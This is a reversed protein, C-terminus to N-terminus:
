MAPQFPYLEAAFSIVAEQRTLTASEEVPQGTSVSLGGTGEGAQVAAGGLTPDSRIRDTVAQVLDDLDEQADQTTPILAAHWLYLQVAYPVRMIGGISHRTETHGSLHVSMIAGRGRGDALGVIAKDKDDFRQSFYPAVAALGVAALPTPRYLRAASDFTSGGFYQAIDDRVGKRSM